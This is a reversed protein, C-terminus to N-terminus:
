GARRARARARAAEFPDAPEPMAVVNSEEAKPEVISSQVHKRVDDMNVRLERGIKSARIAGSKILKRVTTPPLGTAKIPIWADQARLAGAEALAKKVAREILRELDEPSVVIVTSM